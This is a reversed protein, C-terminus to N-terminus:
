LLDDELSEDKYGFICNHREKPNYATFVGTIEPHARFSVRIKSDRPICKIILHDRAGANTAKEYKKYINLMTGLSFPNFQVLQESTKITLVDKYIPIGIHAQEKYIQEETYVMGSLKEILQLKEGEINIILNSAVRPIGKLFNSVAEAKIHARVGDFDVYEADQEIINLDIYLGVYGDTAYIINDCILIHALVPRNENENAACLILAQLDAKRVNISIM